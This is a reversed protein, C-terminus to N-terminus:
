KTLWAKIIDAQKDREKLRAAAAYAADAAAYAAAAAANAADAAAAYAADAANAAAYAADAAAAAANAADAANAAAYAAADKAEILEERTIEGKAFKRAAEIAKAPKDNDPYKATYLHLVSEACDASIMRALYDKEAELAARLSWICDATGNSELITLLSIPKDEGYASVGGLFEALKKYGPVCAGHKRLENFTTTLKCM